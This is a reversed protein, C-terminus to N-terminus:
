PEIPRYTMGYPGAGVTINAVLTDSGSIVLVRGTTNYSNEETVYMDQNSPNYLITDGQADFNGRFTLNGVITSGSIAFIHGADVSAAFMEQNSPDYM